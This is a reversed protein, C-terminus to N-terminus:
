EQFEPRSIGLVKMKSALTAPHIGLREAAGRKGYVKWNSIELARTVNSRELDKMQDYTLVKEPTAESSIRNPKSTSPRDASRPLHFELPGVRLRVVAQEVINQLERVNGPWDYATLNETDQKKLRPTKLGSKQCAIDLFHQVLLHVDERRERLPPLEIPFVSLRYYLDERFNGKMAEVKLDRNTAAVIRCSSHRTETDGIREFTKEQIVRLLKSQMDLPVEGIEDLFLTGNHALEFRGIRDRVAGTFSGQVHGFFESEFLERPISACNVRILPGNRVESQNHVAQAILEKGTGSEGLVLVSTDTPAVLATKELAARFAPSNGVIQDSVRLGELEERLYENESALRARLDDIERFARANVIASALHDAVMRLSMLADKVVPVRLFVGLVGILQDRHLIPHGVFGRIKERRAWDPDAIWDSGASVDRIEVARKTKAIHGVKRVGLPIRKFGGDTRSWNESEDLPLGQSAVLHLCLQQNPCAAAMSCTACIDGEEVLWVRALAVDKRECIKRVTLELLSALERSDAMELLADRVDELTRNMSGNNM